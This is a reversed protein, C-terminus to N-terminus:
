LIENNRSTLYFAHIIGPFFFLMTLLISIALDNDIGRKRFISVPPAIINLIITLSNM